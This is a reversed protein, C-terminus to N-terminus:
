LQNGYFYIGKKGKPSNGDVNDQTYWEGGKKEYRKPEPSPTHSESSLLDTWLVNLFFKQKKVVMLTKFYHSAIVEESPLPWM